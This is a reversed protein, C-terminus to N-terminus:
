RSPAGKWKKARLLVCWAKSIAPAKAVFKRRVTKKPNRALEDCVDQYEKLEKQMHTEVLTRVGESVSGEGLVSLIHLHEM